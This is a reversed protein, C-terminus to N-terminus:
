VNPVEVHLEYSQSGSAALGSAPGLVFVALALLLSPAFLRRLM